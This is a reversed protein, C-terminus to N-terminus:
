RKKLVLALTVIQVFAMVILAIIIAVETGSLRPMSTPMPTSETSEATEFVKVDDFYIKVGNYCQSVSFGQILSSPYTSIDGSTTTVALDEGLLVGDIWVSYTDNVRIVVSKVNYWKDAVYSQLVKGGSRISGDDNFSVPAYERTIYSSVKSSFAIRANDRSGGRTEEVRVNVEYGIEPADSEFLIAPYSAWLDYPEDLGLLQMSKTPSVSVHDVIVQSDAGAGNAWLEWGGASPFAGVAYSEFDDEVLINQISGEVGFNNMFFFSFLLIWSLAVYLVSKKM